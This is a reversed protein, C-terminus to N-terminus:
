RSTRHGLHTLERGLQSQPDQAAGLRASTTSCTLPQAAAALGVDGLEGLGGVGMGAARGRPPVAPPSRPARAAAVRHPPAGCADVSSRPLPPPRPPPSSRSCGGDDPDDLRIVRRRRRLGRTCVADRWAPRRASAASRRCGQRGPPGVHAVAMADGDGHAVAHLGTAVGHLDLRGTSTGLVDPRHGDTVVMTRPGPPAASRDRGPAVMKAPRHSRHLPTGRCRDRRSQLMATPLDVVSFARPM